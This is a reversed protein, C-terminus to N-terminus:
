DLTATVLVQDFPAKDPLLLQLCSCITLALACRSTVHGIQNQLGFIIIFSLELSLIARFHAPPLVQVNLLIIRVQTLHLRQLTGSEFISKVLYKFLLAEATDADTGEKLTVHMSSLSVEVIIFPISTFYAAPHSQRQEISVVGICDTNKIKIVDINIIDYTLLLYPVKLTVTTEEFSRIIILIHKHDTQLPEQAYLLFPAFNVEM